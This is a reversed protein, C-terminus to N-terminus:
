FLLEPARPSKLFFICIPRMSSWGTKPYSVSGTVTGPLQADDEWTIRVLPMQQAYDKWAGNAQMQADTQEAAKQFAELDEGSLYQTVPTASHWFAFHQTEALTEEEYGVGGAGTRLSTFQQVSSGYTSTLQAKVQAMDAEDPYVLLVNVLRLVGADDEQFSFVAHSTTEGFCELQEIAFAPQEGSDSTTVADQSVGYAAMVEEPTMEWSTKPFELLRGEGQVPAACATLLLALGVLACFFSWNRKKM